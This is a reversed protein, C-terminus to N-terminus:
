RSLEWGLHTLEPLILKEMALRCGATSGPMAFILRGRYVGAIARSLMAAAGIEQYSLYRFLEGFGDLRKSVLRDVVDHTVDRRGIGTGGNLLIAQCDDQGALQEITTTIRDADDTVIRYNIVQHGNETLLSKILAGSKDSAEDRTDSVTIVACRVTDQRQSVIAKHEQYGM